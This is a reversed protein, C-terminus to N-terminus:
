TYEVSSTNKMELELQRLNRVPLRAYSDPGLENRAVNNWDQDPTDARSTEEEQEWAHDGRTLAM